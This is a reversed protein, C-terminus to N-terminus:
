SGATLTDLARRLRRIADEHAATQAGRGYTAAKRILRLQERQLRDKLRGARRGYRRRVDHRAQIRLLPAGLRRWEDDRILEREPVFYAALAHLYAGNEDAAIRWVLAAALVVPLGKALSLLAVSAYGDDLMQELLPSNWVFHLAWALAFFAVAVALRRALCRQPHLLYWAIGYSAITTFAAHSWLGALVGRVLLNLLVPAVQAELPFRLAASVTYSLNEVVQFGLGAMAGVVLVSLHTQFQNRAVLILLWVGALKLFEETSPGALAPGWAAAFEPSVLKSCLSQFAANAPAAFYVAGLGGWGFTLVFAEPPHQELLEFRRLLQVFLLTYGGWALLGLGVTLPVVALGLSFTRATYFLGNLILVSLAWFAARRPQLFSDTGVPWAPQPDFSPVSM